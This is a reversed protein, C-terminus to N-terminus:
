ASFFEAVHGLVADPQEIHVYHGAGPVRHHRVDPIAALRADRTEVPLDNWQDPESGTLVLVPCRIRAYQARLSEDSFPGPSGLRMHQDSKWILGGGPGPKSGHRALHRCWEIPLRTNIAKRKQAMEEVSAYERAPESWLREADKIWQSASAAHDEVIMMEPPPGLGDINVVRDVHDPLGAAMSMSLGGGFSHGIVRVPSLGGSSLHRAVQALDLQFMQWYTCSTHLRGSDGHGRVDIAVAHHGLAAIRPAIGDWMRGHDWGGHVLLVPPRNPDGWHWLRITTRGLDLLEARDPERLQL